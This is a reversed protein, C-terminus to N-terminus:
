QKVQINAVQRALDQNVSQCIKVFHSQINKLDSLSDGSFRVTLSNSTNSRRIIGFGHNSDLRLGDIFTLRADAPLPSPSNNVNSQLSRCLASLRTLIPEFNEDTEPLEPENLGNNSYDALPLYVDATSVMEPLSRIVEALTFPQRQLWNLLRLGAYMADDHLIFHDDNFIFHGSLEGAFLVKSRADGKNAQVTHRLISSGTKSMQGVAGAQKILSPLHHSCKVDYIVIPKAPKAFDPKNNVPNDDTAEFKAHDEIAVRALLYLLHDAVLVQGENDIVMLRDGDGDFSLGIDAKHNVVAQSLEQLRNDEMPDPNGKPFHGDPRDNLVIVESCLATHCGFFAKAFPGTAGNLCDIVIKLPSSDPNSIATALTNKAKPQPNNIGNIASIAHNIYRESIIDPSLEIRKAPSTNVSDTAELNATATLQQYIYQIQDSSPSHSNLLWKIGNINAESHSATAILGHGQYQNAWFVMIPTTVLGLWIVEIGQRCFSDALNEAINKSGHRADFGIVVKKAAAYDIFYRALRNSLAQIFEPTFLQHEGRIDYAKFLPRQNSFLSLSM